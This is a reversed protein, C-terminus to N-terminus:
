RSRCGWRQGGVGWDCQPTWQRELIQLAARLVLLLAPIESMAQLGGFLDSSGYHLQLKSHGLQCLGRKGM